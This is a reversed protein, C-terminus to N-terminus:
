FRPNAFTRVRDRNREQDRLFCSLIGDNEVVFKGPSCRKFDNECPEPRPYEDARTKHFPNELNSVALWLLCNNLLVEGVIPFRVIFIRLDSRDEVEADM